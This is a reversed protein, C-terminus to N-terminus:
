ILKNMCGILMTSDFSSEGISETQSADHSIIGFVSVSYVFCATIIQEKGSRQSLWLWVCAIAILSKSNNALSFPM